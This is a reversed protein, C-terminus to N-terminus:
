RLGCLRTVLPGRNAHESGGISLNLNVKKRRLKELNGSPHGGHRTNSTHPRLGGSERRGKLKRPMVAKSLLALTARRCVLLEPRAQSCGQFVGWFGNVPETCSVHPHVSLCEKLERVTYTTKIIFAVFAQCRSAQVLGYRGNGEPCVQDRVVALLQLKYANRWM